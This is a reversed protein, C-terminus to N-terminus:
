LRYKNPVLRNWPFCNGCIRLNKEADVLPNECFLFRPSPGQVAIVSVTVM